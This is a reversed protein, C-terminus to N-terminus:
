GKAKPLCWVGLNFGVGLTMLVGVLVAAWPPLHWYTDATVLYCLGCFGALVAGAVKAVVYLTKLM